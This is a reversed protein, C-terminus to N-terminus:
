HCSRKLNSVKNHRTITAQDLRYLEDLLRVQLSGPGNSNAAALEGAIGLCVLGAIAAVLPKECVGLFAGILATATCGTGTVRAMM